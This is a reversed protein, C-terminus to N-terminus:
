WRDFLVGAAAYVEVPDRAVLRADACAIEALHSLGAVFQRRAAPPRGESAVIAMGERLWTPLAPPAARGPSACRQFLLVHALEHCLACRLEHTAPPVPWLAPSLSVVTTHTAAACIPGDVPAMAARALTQQDVAGHWAVEGRFQGFPLLPDTIADLETRLLGATIADVSAHVWLRLGAAPARLLAADAAHLGSDQKGM